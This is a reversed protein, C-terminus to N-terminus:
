LFEAHGVMGAAVTANNKEDILVFSGTVRNNRYDDVVLPESTELHLLGIENFDLETGPQVTLSDMDVVGDIEAVRAPTSRTTHKLRLRRGKVLPGEGFWCVTAAIERTVEPLPATALMDGRGADTDEDIDFDVSLGPQAPDGGVGHIARVSASIGQPLLTVRDGVTVSAGNLMGAYTRGGGPQRLVWQIPLRAGSESSSWSGATASELAELVTPGEYWNAEASPDVVNDGHLASVPIVLPDTFGLKDGLDRTQKVVGDFPQRDWDALDMKNAAVIITRVGLLAAICLHRRTQEKIGQSADVVVLALDATSAGTAMNRTYQVHGPCDAIVFKRTPTSAYRYAVDITIGQEREARLGDTVFSLDLDGVGRKASAAAVADLQDDFLQRTDVLLRGILTSKGDDVSGITAFRLLEVPADGV